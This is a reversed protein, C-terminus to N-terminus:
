ASSRLLSSLLVPLELDLQGGLEHDRPLATDGEHSGVLKGGALARVLFPNRRFGAEDPNVFTKSNYQDICDAERREEEDPEDAAQAPLGAAVALLAASVAIGNM